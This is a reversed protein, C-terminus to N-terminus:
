DEGDKRLSKLFKWTENEMRRISREAPKGPKHSLHWAAHKQLEDATMRQRRREQQRRRKEITQLKRQVKDFGSGSKPRQVRHWEKGKPTAGGHFHCKGNAMAPRKCQEGTSKAIATCRPMQAKVTLAKRIAYQQVQAFQPSEIWLRKKDSIRKGNKDFRVVRGNM